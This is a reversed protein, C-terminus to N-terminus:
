HQPYTVPTATWCTRCSGCKGNNTAYAPCSFIRPNGLVPSASSSHVDSTTVNPINRLSAPIKVPVDPFMASLRIMLNEPLDYQAVFALVMGYERTPLWHKTRPTRRCVEAIQELHEVSQLDGADHWRFYSDSGILTVMADVWLPDSLSVLRAHQVPEVNNQYKHYNGKQAYCISCISGAIKSLRFGTICAVTPLSYSKCPMKSTQTLGATIRGAQVRTLIM